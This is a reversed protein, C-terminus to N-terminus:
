FHVEIGAQIERPSVYWGPQIVNYEVTGVRAANYPIQAPNIYTTYTSSGTDSYVSNEDRQDFLNYIRVFLGFNLSGLSINRDLYLDVNKQGPLRATNEDLDVTAAAGTTAGRPFDPTYPRGSWYRGILSATWGAVRFVLSANLTHRQDWGMAILAKRPEDQNQLANFADIPNSYTGEAVQYTYDLKAAFNNAYRKELKVTIGRVNSYDKNEYISYKTDPLPTDILPSAGVWDRVDRYFVTVDLGIDNTLQQQLGIEYMVTKQPELDPNGFLRRTAGGGSTFKFDPSVYLFQFEPIQFFHGYSFHIVGRDTIPYAIGIRPSIRWKADVPKLMFSRREDVTYEVLEDEPADPNVYKNKNKFPNYVNTDSPDVPISAKADFYDFRVGINMIMDSIEIKDQLYASLEIPKRLYYDHYISSVPQVNPVFPVIEETGSSTTKPRLTIDNLELEYQRFEVGTKLQHKSNVQSTLDFKGVWYSTSRFFHRMDMGIDYLSYSTPPATSDPHIYGVPGNPDIFYNYALGYNKVSDILAQDSALDPDLIMEELGTTSDEAVRIYYKPVANMDEFTYRKYESNFNNIRIEYFTRPSLVHNLSLIHSISKSEQHPVGYPVYRMDHGSVSGVYYAINNEWENWFVNYNLKISGSPRFTLKAQASTRQYPNMPVLSSDGPVGTPKYWEKGYLYGENSMHRGTVFFSLKNGLLPVPGSLSFEGNYIPNWKTLPSETVAVADITGASNVSTEIHDIVDFESGNSVYDGVYGSFHGTYKKGGENTIINVIGSMAQGYEANFTGSIVQLEKISSNEVVVGMNGNYIDTVAVGDVWYAIEGSRGGRIHINGGSEVIGAQLELVDGINDVPLANIDDGSVSSLASTMDPRVLDRNAIITVSEDSQIVTSTLEANITTTLDISVRVGEFQVPTYGMMSFKLDYTGPPVNIIFYKGELDASGGMLTGQLVVNAGILAEGTAQDIVKGVIKGTTGAFSFHAVLCLILLIPIGKKRM